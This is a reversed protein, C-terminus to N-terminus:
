QTPLRLLLRPDANRAFCWGVFEPTYNQQVAAPVDQRKVERFTFRITGTPQVTALLYGYAKTRATKTQATKARRLDSPLPYRYAGGTGIIWGPLVGGHSRWYDTDYIDAMYFHSHSALIYVPKKTQRQFDLLDTYVQRGSVTGVAWENMGHSVLSEPLAAHMGVVVARVAPNVAAGQQLTKEFWRMQEADFQDWTANDLYIFDVGGQIWHYYTRLSYDQPNDALRQQKLPAADLWDAFRAVFEARSKPPNTEHNGIGMFVPIPDFFSIQNRVFDNWADKQYQALNDQYHVLDNLQGRHAPEHLYDEDAARISRLDGLHWYFAAGDKKAGAAVAPMVVNGCNRSDGSVAFSWAGPELGKKAKAAKGQGPAFGCGISM